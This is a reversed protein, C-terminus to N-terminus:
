CLFVGCLTANKKNRNELSWIPHFDSINKNLWTLVYEDDEIKWNFYDRIKQQYEICVPTFNSPQM